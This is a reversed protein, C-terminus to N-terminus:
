WGTTDWGAAKYWKYAHLAKNLDPSIYKENPIFMTIGGYLSLDQVRNDVATFSTLWQPTANRFPVAEELVAHWTDYEEMSLYSHMIGNMDFFEPKYGTTRHFAYYAQVDETSLATRNNCRPTLLQRTLTALQETRDTRIASILMGYNTEYYSFYNNVIGSVDTPSQFMSPLVTHYPAGPGPTEAPSGIIYDTVDKLEYAVEISQMLCADFMIFDTHPHHSLIHALTTIEMEKGANSYTNRENDIGFSRPQTTRASNAGPSWGSGHSWLVLGYNNAPYATFIDTLVDEMRTSDTSCFDENYERLKQIGNCDIRYLRPNKTDDLFVVVQQGSPLQAAGRIMEALDDQAVGSLSNEAAMYVIVTKSSFVETEKIPDDQCAGLATCVIAALLIRFKTM